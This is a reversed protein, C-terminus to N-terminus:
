KLRTKSRLSIAERLLGGSNVSRRTVGHEESFKTCGDYFMKQLTSLACWQARYSIQSKSKSCSSQNRGPKPSNNNFKEGPTARMVLGASESPLIERDPDSYTKEYHIGLEEQRASQYPDKFDREQNKKKHSRQTEARNLASHRAKLGWWLEHLGRKEKETATKIQKKLGKKKKRLTEM